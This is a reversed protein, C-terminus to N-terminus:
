DPPCSFRKSSSFRRLLCNEVTIYGTPQLLSLSDLDALADESPFGNDGHKKCVPISGFAWGQFHSCWYDKVDEIKMLRSVDIIRLTETHSGRSSEDPQTCSDGSSERTRIIGRRSPSPYSSWLCEAPSDALYLDTDFPNDFTNDFPYDSAPIDNLLPLSEWDGAEEEQYSVHDDNLLPSPNWDDPEEQYFTNYDDFFLDFPNTFATISPFVFTSLFFLSFLAGSTM